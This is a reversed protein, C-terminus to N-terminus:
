DYSRTIKLFFPKSKTNFFLKGTVMPLPVYVVDVKEIEAENEFSFLAKGEYNYNLNERRIGELDTRGKGNSMNPFTEAVFSNIEEKDM